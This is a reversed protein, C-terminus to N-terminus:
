PLPQVPVRLPRRLLRHTWRGRPPCGPTPHSRSSATPCRISWPRSFRSPTPGPSSALFISPPAYLHVAFLPKLAVQTLVPHGVLALVVRPRYGSLLDGCCFM